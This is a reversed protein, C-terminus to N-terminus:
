TITNGWLQSNTLYSHYINLAILSIANIVHDDIIFVIDPPCFFLNAGGSQVLFISQGGGSALLFVERGGRAM